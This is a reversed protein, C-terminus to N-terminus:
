SSFNLLLLVTPDKLNFKARLIFYLM